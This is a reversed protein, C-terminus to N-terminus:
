ASGVAVPAERLPPAPGRVGGLVACADPDSAPPLLPPAGPFAEDLYWLIALSECVPRGDHLLVPVKGHVPNSRRLLELEGAIRLAV